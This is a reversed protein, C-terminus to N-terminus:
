RRGRSSRPVRGQDALWRILTPRHIRIARGLRRVGPLEGRQILEYLTKRNVRLLGAAEDVTLVAPLGYLESNGTSTHEDILAQGPAGERQTTHHPM